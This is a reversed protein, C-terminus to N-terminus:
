KDKLNWTMEKSAKKSQVPPCDGEVPERVTHQMWMTIKICYSLLCNCTYNKDGRSPQLKPSCPATASKPRLVVWWKEGTRCRVWGETGSSKLYHPTRSGKFISRTGCLGLHGQSYRKLRGWLFRSSKFSLFHVGLFSFHSVKQFEIKCQSWALALSESICQPEGTLMPLPQPLVKTSWSNYLSRM